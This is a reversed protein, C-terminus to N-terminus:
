RRQAARSFGAYKQDTMMPAKPGTDIITTGGTLLASPSKSAGGIGKVYGPLPLDESSSRTYTSGLSVGWQVITGLPGLFFNVPNPSSVSYGSSSLSRSFIDLYRPLAFGTGCKYM